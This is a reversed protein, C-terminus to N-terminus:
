SATATRVAPPMATAVNRGNSPQSLRARKAAPGESGVGRARSRNAELWLLGGAVVYFGLGCWVANSLGLVMAVALSAVSALVSAMGNMAWFWPRGREDFAAMGTPFGFGMLCGAPALLTATVVVRAAVPWGLTASYVPGLACHVAGVGVPLVFFWRAVYAVPVRVALASGAGAGLLLISLVVTTAYSPHGLYLVFKQVWPMEVLMFGLGIAFFYASARGFGTVPLVLPLRLLPLLFLGVALVSVVGLLIRLVSVSHENPSLKELYTRDISKFLSATQFFFPRDDTAPEINFGADQYAEPGETLVIAVSNKPGNPEPPWYREFGRTKCVHDLRKLQDVSLPRQSTLFTAIDWARAVYLHTEPRSVERLRLAQTLMLALRASELQHNGGIWRSISLVGDPTLHDLYLQIAETTYLYNESLAFAGAATAAWSDILSVQLVDYRAQSRTLYSRGESVM